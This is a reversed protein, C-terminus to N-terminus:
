VVVWCKSAVGSFYIERGDATHGYRLGHRLELRVVEVREGEPVKRNGTPYIGGSETVKALVRFPAEVGKLTRWEPAAPEAVQPAPAPWTRAIADAAAEKTDFFGVTGNRNKSKPSWAAFSGRDLKAETEDFIVGLHQQDRWVVLKFGREDDSTIVIEGTAADLVAQPIPEEYETDIADNQMETGGPDIHTKIYM